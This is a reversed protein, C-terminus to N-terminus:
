AAAGVTPLPRPVLEVDFVRGRRVPHEERLPERAIKTLPPLVVQTPETTPEDTDRKPSYAPLWGLENDLEKREGNEHFLQSYAPLNPPASASATSTSTLSSTSASPSVEPSFASTSYPSALHAFRLPAVAQLTEVIPASGDAPQYAIQVNVKVEHRIRYFPADMETAVMLRRAMREYRRDEDLEVGDEETVEEGDENAAEKLVPVNIDMKAWERDLSVGGRTPALRFHVSQTPVLPITRTTYLTKERAVALGLTAIQHLTHPSLLPVNPPQEEQPAMPFMDAYRTCAKSWFREVQQVEVDFEQVSLQSSQAPNDHKSRIRVSMPVHGERTGVFQPVDLVLEVTRLLDLPIESTTPVTLEPSLHHSDFEATNPHEWSRPNCPPTRLRRITIPCKPASTSKPRNRGTLAYLSSIGWPSCKKPPASSSSSSTSGDADVFAYKATAYLAYATLSQEPFEASPPLWGPIALDFLISWRTTIGDPKGTLVIPEPVILEKELRCLRVGRYGTDPCISENAGEFTLAISSVQITQARPRPEFLSAPNTLTIVVHGSLSYATRSNALHAIYKLNSNQTKIRM